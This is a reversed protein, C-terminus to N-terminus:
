FFYSAYKKIRSLRIEFQKLKSKTILKKKFFYGNINNGGGWVFCVFLYFSSTKQKKIFPGQASIETKAQM